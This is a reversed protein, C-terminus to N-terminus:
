STAWPTYRAVDYLVKAACAQRQKAAPTDGRINDWTADCAQLGDRTRHDNFNIWHIQFWGVCCGTRSIQTNDCRSERWGIADFRPPLGAATRYWALEDCPELPITTTPAPPPESVQIQPGRMAPASVEVTTTLPPPLNMPGSWVTPPPATDAPEVREEAPDALLLPLGAAATVALLMAAVGCTSTSRDDTM